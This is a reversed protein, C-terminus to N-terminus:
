HSPHFSLWLKDICDIAALASEKFPQANKLEENAIPQKEEDEVKIKATKRSERQAITSEKKM